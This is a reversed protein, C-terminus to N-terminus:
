EDLPEDDEGEELLGLKKAHLYDIGFFCIGTRFLHLVKIKEPIGIIRFAGLLLLVFGSIVFATALIDLIHVTIYTSFLSKKKEAPRFPIHNIRFLFYAKVLWYLFVMIIWGFDRKALFDLWLFSRNYSQLAWLTMGLSLGMTIAPMTLASLFLALFYPIDMGGKQMLFLSLM